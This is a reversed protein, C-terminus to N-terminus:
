RERRKFLRAPRHGVGETHEGTEEVFPAIKRRFNPALLTQGLLTEQVRQLASLTFAAPLFDLVFNIDEGHKQLQQLATAIMEGHDFALDNEGVTKYSCRGFREKKQSLEVQLTEEEASLNLTLEGEKPSDTKVLFWKACLADTGGKVAQERSMVSAYLHSVVRGRPDRNPASFVWVPFLPAPNLNTEEKLERLACEEVTETPSVFGGPLAWKHLFPHEGRRVLLIHLQPTADKRHSEEQEEFMSFVAVDASLSPREFRNADYSSLFEKESSDTGRSGGETKSHTESM